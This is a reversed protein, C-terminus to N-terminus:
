VPERRNVDSPPTTTAYPASARAAAVQEDFRAASEARARRRRELDRQKQIRAAFFVVLFVLVLLAIAVLFSVAIKGLGPIEISGLAANLAELGNSGGAAPAAATETPKINKQLALLPVSKMPGAGILDAVVQANLPGQVAGATPQARWTFALAQGPRPADVQDGTPTLVYGDGTLAAHVEVQAASSALDHKDASARIQELLSAPLILTVSGSKGAALDDSVTFTAGQAVPGALDAQLAALQDTQAAAAATPKAQAPQIPAHQTAAAVVRHRPGFAQLATLGHTEIRRGEHRRHHRAGTPEAAVPRDYRHGYYQVREEPSMDEPNPIPAMSATQIPEQPPPPAPTDSPAPPPGGALEPSPPPADASAMPPPQPPPPGECAALGLALSASLGLAATRWTMKLM